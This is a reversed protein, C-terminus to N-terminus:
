REQQNSNGGGNDIWWVWISAVIAAVVMVGVFINEAM